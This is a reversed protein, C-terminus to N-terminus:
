GLLTIEKRFKELMKASIRFDRRVMEDVAALVQLQNLRKRRLLLALVGLTGVPKLGLRKAASRAASEDICVVDYRCELALALVDSEGRDLFPLEQPRKVKRIQIEGNQVASDIRRADPERKELGQRVSEDYISPPILLPADFAELLWDLKRSKSFHILVSADAVAKSKAVM